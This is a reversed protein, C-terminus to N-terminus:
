NSLESPFGAAATAATLAAIDAKADDYIVVASKQELSVSAKKVGDVRTLSKKVIFPCAPCTMNKVKLTITREAAQAGTSLAGAALVAAFLLRKM